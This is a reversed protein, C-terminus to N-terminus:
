HCGHCTVDPDSSSSAAGLDEFGSELLHQYVRADTWQRGAGVAMFTRERELSVTNAEADLELALSSVGTDAHESSWVDGSDGLVSADGVASEDTGEPVTYYPAHVFRHVLEHAITSAPHHDEPDTGPAATPDELAIVASDDLTPAIGHEGNNHYDFYHGAGYDFPAVLVTADFTEIPGEGALLDSAPIEGERATELYDTLVEHAALADRQYSAEGSDDTGEIPEPHVYARVETTPYTAELYAVATEVTEELQPPNAAPGDDQPHLDPGYNRGHGSDYVGVFGLRLPPTAVVEPAYGTKRDGTVSAHGPVVTATPAGFGDHMEEVLPDAATELARYSGDVDDFLAVEGDRVTLLDEDVAGLDIVCDHDVTGDETRESVRVAVTAGSLLDTLDVQDLDLLPNVECELDFAVTSAVGEALRPTHPERYVVEGDTEAVTNDVVQVWRVDSVTISLVDELDALPVVGDAPATRSRDDTERVEWLSGDHYIVDGPDHAQEGGWTGVSVAQWAPSARSPEERVFWDQCEWIRGEWSVLDDPYYFTGERWPVLTRGLREWAHNGERPQVAWVTERAEWTGGFWETLEGPAYAVAPEWTELPLDFGPFSVRELRTWSPDDASPVVEYTARTAEWLAGRWVVLAGVPYTTFPEWRGVSELSAEPEWEAHTPTPEGSPLATSARWLHGNWVVTSGELYAARPDWADLAEPVDGVHAWDGNELTPEGSSFAELAEWVAGEWTVLAGASYPGGSEWAELSDGSTAEGDAAM